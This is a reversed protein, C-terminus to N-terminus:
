LCYKQIATPELGLSVVSSRLKLFVSSYSALCCSDSDRQPKCFVVFVKLVLANIEKNNQQITKGKERQHKSVHISM